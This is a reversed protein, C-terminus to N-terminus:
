QQDELYDTRVDENSLYGAAQAAANWGSRWLRNEPTRPRYPNAHRPYGQNAALEGLAHISQRVLPNATTRTTKM